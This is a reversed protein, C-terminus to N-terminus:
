RECCPAACRGAASRATRRASTRLAMRGSVFIGIPLFDMSPRCPPPAAPVPRKAASARGHGNMSNERARPLRGSRSCGPALRRRRFEGSSGRASGRRAQAQRFGISRRAPYSSTIPDLLFRDQFGDGLTLMQRILRDCGSLLQWAANSIALLSVRSGRSVGPSAPSRSAAVRLDPLTERVTRALPACLQTM